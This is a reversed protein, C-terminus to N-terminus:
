LTNKSFAVLPRCSELIQCGDFGQGEQGHNQQDKDHTDIRLRKYGLDFRCRFFLDSGQTRCNLNGIM